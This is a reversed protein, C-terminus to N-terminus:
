ELIEVITGPGRLPREVRGFSLLRRSGVMGQRDRM